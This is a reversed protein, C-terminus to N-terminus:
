EQTSGNDESLPEPTPPPQSLSELDGLIENVQEPEVSMITERGSVQVLALGGESMPRYFDYSITLPASDDAENKLRVEARGLKTTGPMVLDFDVARLGSLTSLRAHISSTDADSSDDRDAKVLRWMGASNSLEVTTTESTLSLAEVNWSDFPYLVNSRWRVAARGLAVHAQDTVWFLEKQNRRCAVRSDEEGGVITGFDLTIPEEGTTRVLNVTHEPSDLGLAALDEHEDLFEEIRLGNLDSVLNRLHERDALDAVPHRLEWLEGARVAHVRGLQTTIELTALDGFLADVVSRSRWEDLDRGLDSAFGGNCLIVEGNGLSIPRHSSLPMENGVALEYRADGASQLVVSLFPEELGYEAPEVEGKAFSRESKLAIIAALLSSVASSDAPFDIPEVLQWASGRKSLRFSGHSNTIQLEEVSDASLDPFVKHARERVEDTTPGEFFLIYVGFILVVSVLIMLRGSRM